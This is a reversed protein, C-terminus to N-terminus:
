TAKSVLVCLGTLKVLGRPIDLSNPSITPQRYIFLYRVFWRAWFHYLIPLFLMGGATWRWFSRLSHRRHKSGIFSYILSACVDLPLLFCIKFLCVQLEEPTKMKKGSHSVLSSVLHMQLIRCPTGKLVKVQQWSELNTKWPQKKWDLLVHLNPPTAPVQFEMNAHRCVM